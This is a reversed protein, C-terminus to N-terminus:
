QKVIDDLVADMVESIIKEDAKKNLISNREQEAMNVIYSRTPTESAEVRTLMGGTKYIIKFFEEAFDEPTKPGPKQAEGGPLHFKKVLLQRLQVFPMERCGFLRGSRLM